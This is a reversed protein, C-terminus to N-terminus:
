SAYEVEIQDAESKSLLLDFDGVKLQIPDGLPAKQVVDVKVSPTLGMDFLRKRMKKCGKHAKICVCDGPRTENLSFRKGARRCSKDACLSAKDSTLLCKEKRCFLRVNNELM